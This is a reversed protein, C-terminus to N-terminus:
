LIHLRPTRFVAYLFDVRPIYAYYRHSVTVVLLNKNGRWYSIEFGLYEKLREIDKETM